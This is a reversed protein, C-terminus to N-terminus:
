VCKTSSFSVEYVPLNNLDAHIIQCVLDADGRGPYVRILRICRSRKLNLPTHFYETPVSEPGDDGLYDEDHAEFREM